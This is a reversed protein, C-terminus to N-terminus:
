GICVSFPFAPTARFAGRPAKILDLATSLPEEEGHELLRENM